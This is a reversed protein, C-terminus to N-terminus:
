RSRSFVEAVSARVPVAALARPPGASLRTSVARGGLRGRVSGRPSVRLTGDAAARGSVRLRAGGRGVTGSLRVGPVYEFGRLRITEGDLVFSGGRLGAGSVPSGLAPSLAFTLDDLAVDLAAVTRGATGPIGRAPALQALDSPPVGVAPVHTAVRPCPASARQGRLFAYLRRVGCGTPDGGIVAHGVGPVVVRQVNPLAAADHASGAPPTRLDEGGQLILTPVAPYPGAAQATQQRPVGPWRLCLDIEDVRATAYDFPFFAQPGVKEAEQQAIASRQEFPTDRGWPLPTEECVTAYRAASFLRASPLASLDEASQILRLLPAADDHDLAARVAAPMGSRITPNYDADFMLDSLALSTLSADRARGGAPLSGRMPGARLKDVLRALDGVPDATVGECHRPCLAALTQGMARYPELGFPDSDDPDLVSDLAIREVRDPHARAYALALKTGYSIGLLTLKDVGLERRIAEIDEVSDNTTFFARRAGLRQACQGAPGSARLRPDRELAPCRLLGSYGTGRQDFGVVNYRRKLAGVEFLVDSLERVGAGGPGGSLYLLTPRRGAANFRALRLRETGPVAGARDLPVSLMACRTKEVDHCRSWKLRAQAGPAAILLTLAVAGIGASWRTSVSM